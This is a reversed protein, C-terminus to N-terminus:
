SLSVQSVLVLGTMEVPVYLELTLIGINGGSRIRMLLRTPVISVFHFEIRPMPIARVRHVNRIVQGNWGRQSSVWASSRREAKRNITMIASENRCVHIESLCGRAASLRSKRLGMSRRLEWNILYNIGRSYVRQFIGTFKIIPKSISPPNSSDTDWRTCGIAHVRAAADSHFGWYFPALKRKLGEVM